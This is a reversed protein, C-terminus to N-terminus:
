LYNFNKKPLNGDDGRSTKKESLNCLDMRMKGKYKEKTGPETLKYCILYRKLKRMLSTGFRQHNHRALDVLQLQSMSSVFGNTPKHSSNSNSPKMSLSLSLSSIVCYSLSTSIGSDVHSSSSDVLFFYVLFFIM